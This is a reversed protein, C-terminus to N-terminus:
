GEEEAESLSLSEIPRLNLGVGRTEEAERNTAPLVEQREEALVMLFHDIVESDFQTNRGRDLEAIAEDLSLAKRYPRDATMAEFSDAAALIRAGLPIQEGTLGSPYGGGDVREHHYAILPHVAALTSLNGLITVGIQPHEEIVQREEPTLKGPKLLVSSPIGIKGLDHIRAALVLTELDAMDMKMHRAVKEAYAGVRVSHQFTYSDRKDVADALLEITQQSETRLKNYNEYSYQTLAIPFLLLILGWPTQYYVLSFLTGLPILTIVQFGLPRFVTSLFDLPNHGEVLGLMTSIALTNVTLYAIGALGLALANQPSSLATANGDNVWRYVLGSALVSLAPNCANFVMKYWTRRLALDSVISCSAGILAGLPAGFIIMAAFNISSAISLSLKSRLHIHYLDAFIDAAILLAIVLLSTLDRPVVLQAGSLLLFVIAAATFAWYFIKAPASFQSV